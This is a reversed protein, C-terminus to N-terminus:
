DSMLTLNTLDFMVKDVMPEPMMVEDDIIGREKASYMVARRAQEAIMAALVMNTHFVSRDSCPLEEAEDTSYLADAYENAEDEHWPQVVHITFFRAAMRGDIFAIVNNNGRCMEFVEKRTEMNDPGCIVIHQGEDLGSLPDDATVRRNYPQVNIHDGGFDLIIGGLDAVKARGIAASTATLMQNSVNHREITDDDYLCIHKAGIKAVALGTVSGIGGAGVIHITFDDWVEHPNFKAQRKFQDDLVTVDM